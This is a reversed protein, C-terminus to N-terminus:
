PHWCYWPCLGLAAQWKNSWRASPPAPSHPLARRAVCFDAAAVSGLMLDRSPDQGHGPGRLDEPEVRKTCPPLSWHTPHRARCARPVVPYIQYAKRRGQGATEISDRSHELGTRPGPHFPSAPHSPCFNKTLNQEQLFFRKSFINRELHIAM